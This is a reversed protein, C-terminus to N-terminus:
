AGGGQGSGAPDRDRVGCGARERGGHRAPALVRRGAGLRNLVDYWCAPQDLRDNAAQSRGSSGLFLARWRDGEMGQTRDADVFGGPPELCYELDGPLPDPAVQQHARLRQRGPRPFPALRPRARRDPRRSARDRGGGAGARRRSTTSWSALSPVPPSTSTTRTPRGSCRSRAGRRCTCSRSTPCRTVSPWGSFRGCSGWWPRMSAPEHERGGRDARGADEGRQTARQRGSIRRNSCAPPM